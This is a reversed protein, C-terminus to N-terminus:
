PLDESHVFPTKRARHLCGLNPTEGILRYTNGQLGEPARRQAVGIRMPTPAPSYAWEYRWLRGLRDGELTTGSPFARLSGVGRKMRCGRGSPQSGHEAWPAHQLRRPALMTTKALAHKDEPKGTLM